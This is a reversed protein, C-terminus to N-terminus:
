CHHDTGCTNSRKPDIASWLRAPSEEGAMVSIPSLTSSTGARSFGFRPVVLFSFLFATKKADDEDADDGEEAEGDGGASFFGEEKPPSDLVGPRGRTGDSESPSDAM